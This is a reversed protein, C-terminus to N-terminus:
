PSVDLPVSEHREMAYGLAPQNPYQFDGHSAMQPSAQRLQANRSALDNMDPAMHRISPRNEDLM